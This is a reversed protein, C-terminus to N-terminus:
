ELTGPVDVGAGTPRLRYIRGVLVATLILLGASAIAAPIGIQTALWGGILVGGLIFSTFIANFLAIGRGRLHGPLETLFMSALPVNYLGQAAGVLVSWGYLVGLGVLPAIQDLLIACIMVLGSLTTSTLLLTRGSMFRAMLVPGVTAGLIAGGAFVGELLGFHLASVNFSELLLANFNTTFSGVAFTVPIMFYLLFRLSPLTMVEIVGNRLARYYSGDVQSDQRGDDKLTAITSLLLASALFTAANILFIVNISDIILLIGGLMPGILNVTQVTAQFLGIATPISHNGIFKPISAIRAPEFVAKGVGELLVLILLLPVSDQAVIMLLVTVMRALDSGILLWRKSFRDVFPGIFLGLLASPALQAFIVLGIIFPADTAQAVLYIVAIRTIGDGLFSIVVAFWYRIYLKDKLLALM